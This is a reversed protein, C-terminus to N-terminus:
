AETLKIHSEALTSFVVDFQQQNEAMRELISEIREFREESTM